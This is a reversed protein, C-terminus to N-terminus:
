LGGAQRQQPCNRVDSTAMVAIVVAPNPDPDFLQTADKLDAVNDDRSTDISAISPVVTVNVTRCLPSRLPDDAARSYIDNSDVVDGDGDMDVGRLPESLPPQSERALVYRTAITVNTVQDIPLAGFDFYPVTKHEYYAFTTPAIPSGTGVDLRVSPAVLPRDVAISQASASEVLEDAVAEAVAAASTIQEGHYQDTVVVAFLSWFPSYPADGPIAGIIPPHDIPQLSGDAARSVLVFMPAAFSPAPGFDWARTPAGAAFASLLPVVGSVYGNATLQALDGADDAISPIPTGAPVIDGSPAPTDSVEPGLCGALAGILLTRKM